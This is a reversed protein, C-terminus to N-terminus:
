RVAPVEGTKTAASDGGSGCLSSHHNVLLHIKRNSSHRSRLGVDALHSEIRSRSSFQTVILPLLRCHHAVVSCYFIPTALPCHPRLCPVALTCTTAIHILLIAVETDKRFHGLTLM